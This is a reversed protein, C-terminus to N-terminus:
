HLHSSAYTLDLARTSLAPRSARHTAIFHSAALDRSHLVLVYISSHPALLPPFCKPSPRLGAPLLHHTLPWLPPQTARSSRLDRSQSDQMCPCAYENFCFCHCERLGPCTHLCKCFAGGCHVGGGGRSIVVGAIGAIAMFRSGRPM